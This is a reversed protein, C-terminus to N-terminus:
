KPHRTIDQLIYTDGDIKFFFRWSGTVRAQWRDKGEDYKKARLSPHRLNKILLLSQKDFADRIEKPAKSYARAFHTTQRIKM